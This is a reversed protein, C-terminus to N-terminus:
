RNYKKPFRKIKSKRRRKRNEKILAVVYFFVFVLFVVLLFIFVPSKIVSELNKLIVMTYSKKFTSDSVVNFEGVKLGLYFM